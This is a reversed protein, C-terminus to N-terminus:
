QVRNPLNLAQHPTAPVHSGLRQGGRALRASPERPFLEASKGQQDCPLEGGENRQQSRAVPDWGRTPHNRYGQAAALGEHGTQKHNDRATSNPVHTPM